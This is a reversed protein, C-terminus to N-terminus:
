DRQQVDKVHLGKPPTPPRADEREPERPAYEKINRQRTGTVSELQFLIRSQRMMEDQMQTLAVYMDKLQAAIRRQRQEVQTLREEETNTMAVEKATGPAILTFGSFVAFAAYAIRYHQPDARVIRVQAADPESVSLRSQPHKIDKAILGGQSQWLPVPIDSRYVWGLAPTESDVELPFSQPVAAPTGDEPSVIAYYGQADEPATWFLHFLDGQGLMAPSVSPDPLTYPLPSPSSWRKSEAHLLSHSLTGNEGISVCGIHPGQQMYVRRVGRPLGATDMSVIDRGQVWYHSATGGWEGPAAHEVLLVPTKGLLAAQFNSCVRTPLLRTVARHQWHPPFYQIHYIMGNEALVFLFPNQEADWGGDMGQVPYSTAYMDDASAHGPDKIVKLRRTAHIMFLWRTRETEDALALPLNSTAM